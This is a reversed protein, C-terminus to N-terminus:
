PVVTVPMYGNTWCCHFEFSATRNISQVRLLYEGPASFTATTTAVGDATPVVMEPQGFSVQGPGQHHRWGVWVREEPHDIWVSLTLPDGVAVRRREGTFGNRGKFAPGSEEFSLVPAVEGRGDSDPEDLIYSPLVKGPTMLAESGTDLTWRVEQQGFGEPVNVSFVCLHRRYNAAPVRDFHTPQMGDFEAPEIRNNPGLPVDIDVETNLSFYGFCIQYSNDPNQYYGEYLPVVPQGNPRLVQENFVRESLPTIQAVGSATFILALGASGISAHLWRM